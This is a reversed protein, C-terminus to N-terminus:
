KVSLVGFITLNKDNSVTKAETFTTGLDGEGNADDGFPVSPSQFKKTGGGGM